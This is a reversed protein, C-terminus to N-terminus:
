CLVIITIIVGSPIATGIVTSRDEKTLDESTLDLNFVPNGLMHTVPYVRATGEGVFCPDDLNPVTPAFTTYYVVKNFVVPSSLCKEGDQKDLIVYWGHDTTAGSALLKSSVNELDSEDLSTGSNKDKFGYIRDMDKNSKPAERDGTGFFLMEYGNEFTVDPPYFIKRKESAGRNSRFIIKGTVGDKTIDIRWMRANMDGVYVRDITGNGDMDLKTVDSPISHTMNTQGGAHSVYRVLSGDELDAFYVGRGIDDDPPNLVDDQGVDYGAGFIAVLKKGAGYPIWGIAPSSWTQGLEQFLGGKGNYIKWLYKPGTPNTVDLAYYYNGGRRLGFILIAKNLDGNEDYTVYAKPSGDVFIGPTDTPLEKLRKL